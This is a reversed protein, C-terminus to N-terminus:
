EAINHTTIRSYFHNSKIINKGPNKNESITKGKTTKQKYRKYTHNEHNKIVANALM